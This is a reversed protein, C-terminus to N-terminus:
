MATRPQATAGSTATVDEGRVREVFMQQVIRNGDRAFDDHSREGQEGIQALRQNGLTRGAERFTKFTDESQRSMVIDEILRIFDSERTADVLDKGVGMVKGLVKKGVGAEAGIEHQYAELMRQHEQASPIFRSCLDRFRTDDAQKEHDILSDVFTKHQMVANNVQSKLFDMGTEM